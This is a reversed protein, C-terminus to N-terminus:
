GVEVPVDVLDDETLVRAHEGTAVRRREAPLVVIMYTLVAGTACLSMTGTMAIATRGDFLAAAVASTIAGVVMQLGTTVASAVGAIDPLPELAGQVANARVVAHGVHSIVVLTILAAATLRGILSLALLVLTASVIVGLGVAILKHHSVGLQNLRANLLSGTIM